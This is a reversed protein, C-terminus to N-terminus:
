QASFKWTSSVFENGHLLVCQVSPVYSSHGYIHVNKTIMRLQRPDGPVFKFFSPKNKKLQKKIKRPLREREGLFKLFQRENYFKKM